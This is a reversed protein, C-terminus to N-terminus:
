STRQNWARHVIRLPNRKVEFRNHLYATGICIYLATAEIWLLVSPDGSDLELWMRFGFFAAWAIAYARVPRASIWAMLSAMLIQGACQGIMKVRWPDFVTLDFMQWQFHGVEGGAVYNSPLVNYAESLLFHAAIACILVATGPPGSPEHRVPRTGRRDSRAGTAGDSRVPGTDQSGGEIREMGFRLYGKRGLM